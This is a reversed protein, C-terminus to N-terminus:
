RLRRAIAQHLSRIDDDELDDFRDIHGFQFTEVDDVGDLRGREVSVFGDSKQSLESLEDRLRDLRPGFVRALASKQELKDLSAIMRDVQARSLEGGEGLLISYRVNPNRKRANLQRLFHSNPCLDQRAEGLGDLMSAVLMGRPRLQRERAIHEYLDFGHAFRACVSGRNPPAIMVLREVNGPDLKPDEIAGRAVLGGMSFTVLAIRRNPQRQALEKLEGALLKASDAIPQDNPYVFSACAFGANRLPDLFVDMARASGTFGHAGVILQEDTRDQATDDIILGFRQQARYKDRPDIIRLSVQRIKSSARRKDTHLRARDIEIVLMAASYDERMVRVKAYRRLVRNIREIRKETQSKELDLEGDPLLWEIVGLDLGAVRGLGALLDSTTVMGDRVPVHVITKDNDGTSIRERRVSQPPPDAARSLSAGQSALAVLTACVFMGFTRTSLSASLM